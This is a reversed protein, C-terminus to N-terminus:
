QRKERMVDAIVTLSDSIKTLVGGIRVTSEDIKKAIDSLECAVDDINGSVNISAAIDALMGEVTKNDRFLPLNM